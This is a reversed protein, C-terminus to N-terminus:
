AAKSREVWQAWPHQDRLAVQGQYTDEDRNDRKSVKKLERLEPCDPFRPELPQLQPLDPDLSPRHVQWHRSGLYSSDNNM